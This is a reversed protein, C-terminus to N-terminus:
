WKETNEVTNRSIDVFSIWPLNCYSDSKYPVVLLTFIQSNELSELGETPTKM